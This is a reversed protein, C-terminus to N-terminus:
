GHLTSRLYADYRQAYRAMQSLAMELAPARVPM